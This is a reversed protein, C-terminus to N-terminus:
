VYKIVLFGGILLGAFLLALWNFYKDIFPTIRPGFARMLGAVLFFRAARSTTAAILFLAFFGARNSMEPSTALVGAFINFVKFPLPTFGATFIIWFNWREFWVSVTDFNERTLGTWGLWRFAFDDIAWWVLLGILFAAVAGCVSAVTCNIAYRFWKRRNGLTLPILLVDPPVPFIISESFSLVFLAVSASPRYAWALTWDYVRRHVCWWPVEGHEGVRAGCHPCYEADCPCEMGCRWCANEM